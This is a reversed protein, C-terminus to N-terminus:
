FNIRGTTPFTRLAGRAFAANPNNALYAVVQGQSNTLPTVGTGTGFAGSPNTFVGSPYFGGGLLTDFGSQLSANAPTEYTYTGALNLNVLIDRVWSFGQKGM